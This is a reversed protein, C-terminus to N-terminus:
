IKILSSKLSIFSFLALTCYCECFSMETFLKWFGIKQIENNVAFSKSRKTKLSLKALFSYYKVKILDIIKKEGHSLVVNKCLLTM